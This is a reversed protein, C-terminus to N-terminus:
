KYYYTNDAELTDLINEVPVVYLRKNSLSYIKVSDQNVLELWYETKIKPQAPIKWYALFVIMVLGLFMISTRVITEERKM